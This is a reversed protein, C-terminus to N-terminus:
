LDYFYWMFGNLSLEFTPQEALLSIILGSSHRIICHDFYVDELTDMWVDLCWMCVGEAEKVLQGGKCCTHGLHFPAAPTM